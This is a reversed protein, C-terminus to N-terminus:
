STGAILLRFISSLVLFKPLEDDSRANGVSPKALGITALTYNGRIM